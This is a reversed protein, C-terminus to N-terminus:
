IILPKNGSDGIYKIQNSSKIIAKDLVKFIVMSQSSIEKLVANVARSISKTSKRNTENLNKFSKNLNMVEHLYKECAEKESILLDIKKLDNNNREEVLENEIVKLRKNVDFVTKMDSAPIYSNLAQYIFYDNQNALDMKRQVSIPIKIDKDVILRFLIPNFARGENKILHYLCKAGLSNKVSANQGCTAELIFM